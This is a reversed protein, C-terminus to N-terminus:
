ENETLTASGDFSIMKMEDCENITADGISIQNACATMVPRIIIKDEEFQCFYTWENGEADLEINFWQTRKGAYDKWLQGFLETILM